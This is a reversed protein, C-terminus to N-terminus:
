GADKRFEALRQRMTAVEESKFKKDAEALAVARTQVEVARAREGTKALLFAYTALYRANEKGSAEVARRALVLAAADNPAKAKDQPDVSRSAIANLARPDDKLDETALRQAFALLDPSGMEALIEYRKSALRKRLEPRKGEVDDLAKLAAPLDGAKRAANVPRMLATMEATERMMREMENTGREFSAKSAALDFDGALISDITKELGEDPHGIWLITGDKVVFSAPIGFQQAADLWTAAMTPKEGDWAVNYDMKTGMSTVFKRVLALQDDGHEWVSVGTFDARRRYKRAMASLHPMSDICPHCWTAWFEVVHLGKSLDVKRGKVMAAVQLPPAKDGVTLGHSLAALALIPLALFRHM